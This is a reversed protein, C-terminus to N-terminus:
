FRSIFSDTIHLIIIWLPLRHEVLEITLFFVSNTSLNKIILISLKRVLFEDQLFEHSLEVKEVLIDQIQRIVDAGCLCKNNIARFHCPLIFDPITPIQCELFDNSHSKNQFDIQGKHIDPFSYLNEKSNSLIPRIISPPTHIFLSSSRYLSSENELTISEKPIDLSDYSQDGPNLLNTAM